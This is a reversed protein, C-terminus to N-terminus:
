MLWKKKNTLIISVVHDASCSSLCINIPELLFIFFFELDLVQIIEPPLPRPNTGKRFTDIYKKLDTEIYEFVLYLLPKGNKEVQEVCLLRFFAGFVFHFDPSCSFFRNIVIKFLFFLQVRRIFLVSRRSPLPLPTPTPLDRPPRHTPHGGRGDRAADEELRRAPGDGQGAGQVGERVDGGWGERDERVEGDPGSRHYGIPRILRYLFISAKKESRRDADDGFNSLISLLSFSRQLTATARPHVPISPGEM